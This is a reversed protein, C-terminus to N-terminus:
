HIHRAVSSFMQPVMLNISMSIYSNANLSAGPYVIELLNEGFGIHNAINDTVYKVPTQPEAPMQTTSMEYVEDNIDDLVDKTSSVKRMVNRLM